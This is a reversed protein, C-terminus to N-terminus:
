AVRNEPGIKLVSLQDPETRVLFIPVIIQHLISKLTEARGQILSGHWELVFARSPDDKAARVIEVSRTGQVNYLTRVCAREKTDSFPCAEALIKDLLQRYEHHPQDGTTELPSETQSGKEDVHLLDVPVNIQSALKLGLTLASSLRIEGSMPVFISKIPTKALDVTPSLILVPATSQELLDKRIEAGRGIEENISGSPVVILDCSHRKVADHVTGAPWDGAVPHSVTKITQFAGRSPRSLIADLAKQIDVPTLFHIDADIQNAFSVSNVVYRDLSNSRLDSLVCVLISRKRQNM